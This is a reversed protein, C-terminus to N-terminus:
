SKTRRLCVFSNFSRDFFYRWLYFKKTININLNTNLFKIVEPLQYKNVKKFLLEKKSNILLNKLKKM